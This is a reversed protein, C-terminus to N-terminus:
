APLRNRVRSIVADISCWELRPTTGGDLNGSAIKLPRVVNRTRPSSALCALASRRPAWPLLGVGVAVAGAVVAAARSDVVADVVAQAPSDVAQAPSDVAEAARKAPQRDANQIAAAM